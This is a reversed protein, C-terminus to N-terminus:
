CLPTISICINMTHTFYYVKLALVTPQLFFVMARHHRRDALVSHQTQKILADIRIFSVRIKASWLVECPHPKSTSSILSSHSVGPLLPCMLVALTQSSASAPRKLVSLEGSNNKGHPLAITLLLTLFPLDNLHHGAAAGGSPIIIRGCLLVKFDKKGRSSRRNRTICQNVNQPLRM